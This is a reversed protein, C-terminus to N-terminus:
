RRQAATAGIQRMHQRLSAADVAGQRDGARGDVVGACGISRRAGCGHQRAVITANEEGMFRDRTFNHQVDSRRGIPIFMKSSALPIWM